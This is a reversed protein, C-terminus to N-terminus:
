FELGVLDGFMSQWQSCGTRLMQSRVALCDFPFLGRSDWRNRILTVTVVSTINTISSFFASTIKLM